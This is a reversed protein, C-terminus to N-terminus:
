RSAGGQHVHEIFKILFRHDFNAAYHPTQLNKHDVTAPVILLEQGREQTERYIVFYAPVGTSWLRCMEASQAGRWKVTPNAYKFEWWSGIRHWGISVDPVAARIADEHRFVVAQPHKARFMTLAESRLKAESLDSKRM